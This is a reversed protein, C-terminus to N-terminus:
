FGGEDLLAAAPEDHPFEPPVHLTDGRQVARLIDTMTVMGLVRHESGVVVVRHIHESLMLDIALQAADGPRVFQVYSTMLDSVKAGGQKGILDTKSIMGVLRGGEVVPAGGICHTMIDQVLVM